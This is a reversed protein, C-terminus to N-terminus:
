SGVGVGVALTFANVNYQRAQSYSITRSYAAALSLLRRAGYTVRVSPRLTMVVATMVVDEGPYKIPLRTTLRANTTPAAELALRGRWGGSRWERGAGVRVEHVNSITTEFSVIETMTESPPLTHTVIKTADHFRNRDRRYQYGVHWDVGVARGLNLTHTTRLSQLSVPGTTGSVVVDGSLQYFTDFDDGRTTRQPTVAVESVVPKGAIRYAARLSIWQNDGWYTQKYDHPVLAATDFSSPNEFRYSWQDLAVAYEATVTVQAAAALPWAGILLLGFALRPRWRIM